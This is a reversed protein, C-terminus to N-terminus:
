FWHESFPFLCILFFLTLDNSCWMERESVCDGWFERVCVRGREREREKVKVFVCTYVRVCNTCVCVCM